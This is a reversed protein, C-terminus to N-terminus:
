PYAFDGVESGSRRLADVVAANGSGMSYVAVLGSQSALSAGVLVEGERHVFRGLLSAATQGLANNDISYLLRAALEAFRFGAGGGCRRRGQAKRGRESNSRRKLRWLPLAMWAARRCRRKM